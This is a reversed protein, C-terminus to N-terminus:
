DVGVISLLGLTDLGAPVDLHVSSGDAAVSWPVEIDAQGPMCLRASRVSQGAPLALEVGLGEAARSGTNVLLLAWGTPLSRLHMQVSEPADSRLLGDDVWTPLSASQATLHLQSVGALAASTRPRWADDYTGTAGITILRSGSFRLAAATDESMAQVEPLILVAYAHDAAVYSQSPVISRGYQFARELAPGQRTALDTDPVVDFPIHARYLASAVARFANWHASPAPTSAAAPNRNRPSYVLAVRAASEGGYLEAQHAAIWQRLAEGSATARWDAPTVVSVGEALALGLRQTGQRTVDADTLAWAPPDLTAAVVSALASRLTLWQELSAHVQGAFDREVPDLSAGAAQEWNAWTWTVAAAPIDSATPTPSATRTPAPTPTATPVPTPTPASTPVPTATATAGLTPTVTAAPTLEPAAIRWLSTPAEDRLGPHSAFAIWLGDPSWVPTSDVSADDHTLRVPTGGVAAVTFL